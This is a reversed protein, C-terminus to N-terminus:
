PRAVLNQWALKLFVFRSHKVALRLARTLLSLALPFRRDYKAKYKRLATAFILFRSQIQDVSQSADNASLSQIGNGNIVVFSAKHVKLRECFVVDSFDLPFDEDYGGAMAFADVSILMASNIIYYQSFPLIGPSVNQLSRGKGFMVKYPSIMKKGDIMIPVLVQHSRYLGVAVPYAALTALPLHSDQDLLLLWSKQLKRAFTFAQNYAHSVGSNGGDHFYFVNQEGTEQAAPSNDYVYISPSTSLARISKFAPTDQLKKKFVVIVVLVGEFFETVAM